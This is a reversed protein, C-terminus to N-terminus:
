VFICLSYYPLLNLISGIILVLFVRLFIPEKPKAQTDTQPHPLATQIAFYSHAFAIPEKKPDGNQAILYCAYRTLMLDPIEKSVGKPMKITKNVDVFHDFVEEGSSKCSEKAKETCATKHKIIINL